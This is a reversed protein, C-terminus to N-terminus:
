CVKRAFTWMLLARALGTCKTARQTRSGAFDNGIHAEVTESDLHACVFQLRMGDRVQTLPLHLITSVGGKGKYDTATVQAFAQLALSPTEGSKVRRFWESRAADSRWPKLGIIESANGLLESGDLPRRVFVSSM